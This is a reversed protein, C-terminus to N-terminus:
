PDNIPSVLKKLRRIVFLIPSTNYVALFVVNKAWHSFTLQGGPGTPGEVLSYWLLEASRIPPAYPLWFAQDHVWTATDMEVPSVTKLIPWAHTKIWAQDGWQLSRTEFIFQHSILYIKKREKQKQTSPYIEQYTVKRKNTNKKSSKM